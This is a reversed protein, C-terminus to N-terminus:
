KRGKEALKAHERSKFINEKIRVDKEKERLLMLNSLSFLIFKKRRLYSLEFNIRETQIFQLVSIIMKMIIKLQM